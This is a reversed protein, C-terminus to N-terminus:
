SGECAFSVPQRASLREFGWYPKESAVGRASEPIPPLRFRTKRM